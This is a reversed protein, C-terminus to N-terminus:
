TSLGLLMSEFAGTSNEGIMRLQNPRGMATMQYWVAGANGAIAELAETRVPIRPSVVMATTEQAIVTTQMIFPLLLLFTMVTLMTTATREWTEEEVRVDLEERTLVRSEQGM